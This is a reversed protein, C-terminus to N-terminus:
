NICLVQFCVKMLYFVLVSVYLVNFHSFLLCFFLYQMKQFVLLFISPLVFFLAFFGDRFGICVFCANVIIRPMFLVKVHLEVDFFYFKSIQPLLIKTFAYRRGLFLNKHNIFFNHTM